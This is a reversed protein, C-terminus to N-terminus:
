EKINALARIARQYGQKASKNLWEQAKNLDVDVGLVQQYITGLYFQFVKDGAEAKLLSINFAKAFWKEAEAMDRTVLKGEKYLQALELQSIVVNSNALERMADISKKRYKQLFINRRITVQIAKQCKASVTDNQQKAIPMCWKIIKDFDSRHQRVLAYAAASFGQEASKEYWRKSENFNRKVDPELGGKELRSGVAYQALMHGNKAAKLYWNYAELERSPKIHYEYIKGLNFQAENDGNQAQKKYIKIAKALYKNAIKEDKNVIKGMHYFSSLRLMADPNGLAEAQEFLSIADNYNGAKYQQHASSMLESAEPSTKAFVYNSISVILVLLLMQPRM